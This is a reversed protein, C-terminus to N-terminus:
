TKEELPFIQKINESKMIVYAKQHTAFEINKTKKHPRVSNM